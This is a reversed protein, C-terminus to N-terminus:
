NTSPIGVRVYNKSEQLKGCYFGILGSILIFILVMLTKFVSVGGVRDPFAGVKGKVADELSKRSSTGYNSNQDYYFPLYSQHSPFDHNFLGRESDIARHRRIPKSLANSGRTIVITRIFPTNRPSMSFDIERNEKNSSDMHTLEKNKNNFSRMDLSDKLDFEKPSSKSIGISPMFQQDLDYALVSLINNFLM